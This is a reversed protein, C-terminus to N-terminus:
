GSARPCCWGECRTQAGVLGRRNTEDGTLADGTLADGTLQDGTLADGTLEGYM